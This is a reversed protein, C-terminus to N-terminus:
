VLMMRASAGAKRLYEQSNRITRSGVSAMDGYARKRKLNDHAQVAEVRVKKWDVELEEAILMPASTRSGQGMETRAYRIVISEDAHIDIWANVEQANSTQAGSPLVFGLSLAATTSASVQLFHRRKM